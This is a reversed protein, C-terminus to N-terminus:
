EANASSAHSDQAKLLEQEQATLANRKDTLSNYQNILENTDAVKAKYAAVQSNFGPVAANYQDIRSAALLANMQDRQAKLKAEWTDLDNQAQDIKLKLEDRQKDYDDIQQQRQSFASVYKDRYGVVKDRDTFYRQYYAELDAPLHAVETGFISHMENSMQDPEIKKYSALKDAVNKDTLTKYYAQLMANVHTRESASLRDYAQHLMEHAATVETIGALREDTVHYLYIGNRNGRYCGLVAVEHSADPCDNNFADKDEIAPYNVYFLRKAYPTMTTRDALSVVEQPPDYNRSHVWDIIADHQLWVMMGNGIVLLLVAIQLLTRLRHPRTRLQVAAEPNTTLPQGSEPPTVAPSGLSSASSGGGEGDNVQSANGM